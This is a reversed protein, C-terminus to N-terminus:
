VTWWRIPKNDKGYRASFPFTVIVLGNGLDYVTQIDDITVQDLHIEAREDGRSFLFSIEKDVITAGEDAPGSTSTQGYYDDLIATMLDRTMRVGVEGNYLRPGILPQNIFLSDADRNTDGTVLQNNYNMTVTRVGGFTSPTSGYKFVGGVMTFPEETNKTYSSGTTIYKPLKAVFDFDCSVKSGISGSISFTQGVCGDFLFGNGVSPQANFMECTFSQLDSSSVSTAETLVYPDGATGSGTKPGVWHKLFDLGAPVLEMSGNGGADVSVKHSSQVNSGEGASHDYTKNITQRPTLNTIKPIAKTRSVPTAWISEEGYLGRSFVQSQSM